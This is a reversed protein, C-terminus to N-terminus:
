PTPRGPGQADHARASLYAYLDAIHVTVGPEGQWAPMTLAHQRRQLLDDMLAAMAPDQRGDRAVPLGWDYRRLVVSMFQQAGMDRVLPLLNPASATGTAAAGHCSACKDQFLRWGTYVSGPPNAARAVERAAQRNQWEVSCAGLGLASGLALGLAIWGKVNQRNAM